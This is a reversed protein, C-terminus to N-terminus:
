LAGSPLRIGAGPPPAGRPGVGGGEQERRAATCVQGRAKLTAGNAGKLQNIFDEPIQCWDKNENMWKIFRAEVGSLNNFAACAVQATPRKKNFSNIREIAAQRDGTLKQFDNQCSAPAAYAQASAFLLVVPVYRMCGLM